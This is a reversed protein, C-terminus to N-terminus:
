KGASEFPGVEDTHTPAHMRQHLTQPNVEHAHTTTLITPQDGSTGMDISAVINKSCHKLPQSQSHHHTIRPTYLCQSGRMSAHKIEATNCASIRTRPM